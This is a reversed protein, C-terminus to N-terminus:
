GSQQTGLRCHEALARIESSMRPHVPYIEELYNLLHIASEPIRDYGQLMSGLVIAFQPFRQEVRRENGFADPFYPMEPELLHLVSLLGDIPYSEIFRLASLKEGRAYRGLGVYLNTLAEGVVYDISSSKISPIAAQGTAIRNNMYAPHKWVIRGGTYLVSDLESEEFVAFEGYIGDEFMVKYGFDYNKFSYALLCTDELWDLQDIFSQKTGPTVIVYFDLDSYDDIRETETGVSGLGILALVNGTGELTKGIEDLRQLLLQKKTMMM